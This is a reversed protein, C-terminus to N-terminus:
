REWLQGYAIVLLGRLCFSLDEHECVLQGRCYSLLKGSWAAQRWSSDSPNTKRWEVTKTAVEQKNRGCAATNLHPRNSCMDSSAHHRHTYTHTHSHQACPYALEIARVRSGHREQKCPFAVTLRKFYYCIAVSFSLTGICNACHQNEPSAMEVALYLYIAWLLKVLCCESVTITQFLCNLFLNM